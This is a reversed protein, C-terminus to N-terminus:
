FFLSTRQPTKIVRRHVDKKRDIKARLLNQLAASYVAAFNVPSFPFHMM